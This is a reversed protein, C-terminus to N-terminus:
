RTWIVVAGCGDFDNFKPPASNASYIEVRKARRILDMQESAQDNILPGVDYGDHFFRPACYGEGRRLKLELNSGRRRIYTRSGFGGLSYASIAPINKLMEDTIFLGVARARRYEFEDKERQYPDASVVVRELGPPVPDLALEGVDVDARHPKIPVDLPRYGVARVVLTSSRRAVRFQFAGTSDTRTGWQANGAIGISAEAVGTSNAGEKRVVRGRVLLLASDGGVILDFRVERNEIPVFMLGTAVAHVAAKLEVTAGLPVGCLAFWGVSDTTDVTAVERTSIGGRGISTEVWRAAVEIFSAPLGDFTGLEGM